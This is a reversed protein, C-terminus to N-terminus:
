SKKYRYTYVSIIAQRLICTTPLKRSKVRYLLIYSRFRDHTGLLIIHNYSTNIEMDININLYLLGLQIVIYFNNQFSMTNQINFNM